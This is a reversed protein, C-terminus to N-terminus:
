RNLRRQIERAVDRAGHELAEIPRGQKKSRRQARVLILATAAAGGVVVAAVPRAWNRPDRMTQLEWGALEDAAAATLETLREDLRESLTAAPEVPTLALKLLQEMDFRAEAM